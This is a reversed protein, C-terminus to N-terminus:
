GVKTRGFTGPRVEKGLSDFNMVKAAAGNTHVGSTRLWAEGTRQM